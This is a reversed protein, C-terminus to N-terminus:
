ITTGDPSFQADIIIDTHGELTKIKNVLKVDWLQITMDNSCLLTNQDPSLRTYGEFQKIQNGLEVDWLGVIRKNFHVLFKNRDSLFQADIVPGVYGRLEEIEHGSRVDWIKITEDYSSSVVKTGDPSFRVSNVGHLHGQFVKSLKFYKLIIYQLIIINFDDIWGMKNILLSRVWYGIIMEVERKK